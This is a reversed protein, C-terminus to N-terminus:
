DASSGTPLGRAEGKTWRLYAEHVAGHSAAPRPAAGAELDSEFRAQHHVLSLRAREAARAAIAGPLTFSSRDLDIPTQSCSAALWGAVALLLAARAIRLYAGMM